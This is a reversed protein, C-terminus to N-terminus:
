WWAAEGAAILAPMLIASVIPFFSAVVKAESDSAGCAAATMPAPFPSTLM